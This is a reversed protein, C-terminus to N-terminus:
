GFTFCYVEVGQELFEIEFLRDAIPGPQRILQYTRQDSVIGSGDAAVDSGHADKALQGDLFVRFPVSAGRAAPGMVLNVDRAHFRFAIRGGPESLVAAHRAVTWNGALAWHNLPLRAPAAYAHPEDF